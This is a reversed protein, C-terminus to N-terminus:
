SFIDRHKQRPKKKIIVTKSSRKRKKFPVFVNAAEVALDRGTDILRRKLSTKLNRGALVDRAINVGTSVAKKKLVPLINERILPAAARILGKFISGLGNGRQLANFGSIGLGLQNKYYREYLAPDAIHNVKM